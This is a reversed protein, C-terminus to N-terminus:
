EGGSLMFIFQRISEENNFKQKKLSNKVEHVEDIHEVIYELKENIAEDKNECVWGAACAEIMEYTSTTKTALIPVGLYKAEDFVMPAAEHYSPLLFLDANKMYSYPNTQNGYLKIHEKMNEKSILEEIERRVIGDGVIHWKVKAGREVLSKIISICRTIGKEKGLRSVTVINFNEQDYVIAENSAQQTIEPYNNFNRVCYVKEELSPMAEIFHEKCGESVAVIKDFKKYLNRNHKTNGGYNLFDCHVFTIKEKANVKELLFENCGGYFNKENSCQLCSIGYDYTGLQKQFMMLIKFPIKNNFLKTTFFACAGRLLWWFLGKEKAESQSMGLLQLFSQAEIVKIGPPLQKHYEGMKTFLFLTIDYQDYLENLMNMLAKQVGGIRLNNNVILMTEKMSELDGTM